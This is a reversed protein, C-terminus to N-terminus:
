TLVKMDDSVDCAGGQACQRDVRVDTGGHNLPAMSTLESCLSHVRCQVDWCIHM